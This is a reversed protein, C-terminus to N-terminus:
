LYHNFLLKLLSPLHHYFVLTLKNKLNRQHYTKKQHSQIEAQHKRQTKKKVQQKAVMSTKELDKLIPGDNEQQGGAEFELQEDGAWVGVQEGNDM